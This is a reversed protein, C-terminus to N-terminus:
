LKAVEALFEQRILCQLRLYLQEFAEAQEPEPVAAPDPLSWHQRRIRAPWHPCTDDRANDCVSLVWDLALATPGIFEQWSKSRFGETPLGHRALTALAGPHVRGSPRSGASYVEFAPGGLHRLLAEALISRASNGTCLFLVKLPPM